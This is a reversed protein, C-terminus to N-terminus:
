LIYLLHTCHYGPRQRILSGSESYLLRRTSQDSEINAGLKSMLSLSAGLIFLEYFPLVSNDDDIEEQIVLAPIISCDIPALFRTPIPNEFRGALSCLSASDIGQFRNRPEM